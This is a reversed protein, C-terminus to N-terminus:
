AGPEVWRFPLALAYAPQGPRIGAKRLDKRVRNPLLYEDNIWHGYWDRHEGTCRFCAGARLMWQPRKFVSEVALDPGLKGYKVFSRWYGHTPDNAAPQFTSLSVWGDEIGPPKLDTVEEPPGALEVEGAGVAADAGFGAEALLGFLDAAWKVQDEGVRAFITLTGPAALLQGAAEYLQGAEGVSDVTRDISNRLRVADRFPQKRPRDFLRPLSGGQVTRFEDQTLWAATRVKKRDREEIGPLLALNAPAPLLDDPFADSVVLTPKAERWPNILKLEAEEVGAARVYLAALLGAITDAQWATMWPTVPKLHFRILKM